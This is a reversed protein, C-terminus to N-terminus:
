TSFVVFKSNEASGQNSATEWGGSSDDDDDDDDDDSETTVSDSDSSTLEPNSEDNDVQVHVGTVEAAM